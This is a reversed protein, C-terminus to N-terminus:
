CIPHLLASEEVVYVALSRKSEHRRLTDIAVAHAFM